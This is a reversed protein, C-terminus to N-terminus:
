PCYDDARGYCCDLWSYRRYSNGVDERALMIKQGAVEVEMSGAQEMIAIENQGFGSVVGSIDKMLKGYKPGLTKFNPKIKKKIIESTDSLYEVEKVNVEALVINKISDFQERFHTNLVPVMIKALPQRVKLKEKRRLALIMSSAKQAIGMKEELDKDIFNAEYIPFDALHVSQRLEKGTVENLDTYLL